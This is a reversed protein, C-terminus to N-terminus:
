RDGVDGFSTVEISFILTYRHGADGISTVEISFLLAYRDGADGFIFTYRDGLGYFSLWTFIYFAVEGKQSPPM